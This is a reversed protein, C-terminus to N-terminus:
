EASGTDIGGWPLWGEDWGRTRETRGVMGRGGRAEGISMNASMLLRLATVSHDGTIGEIKVWRSEVSM